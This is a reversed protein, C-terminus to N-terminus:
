GVPGVDGFYGYGLDDCDQDTESNILHGCMDFYAISLWM